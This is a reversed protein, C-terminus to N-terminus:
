MNTFIVTYESFSINFITRKRKLWGFVAEVFIRVLGHSMIQNALWLAPNPLDALWLAPYPLDALWLAPNPLDVLWLTPNPLDAVWLATNPLDALWLSPAVAHHWEPARGTEADPFNDFTM